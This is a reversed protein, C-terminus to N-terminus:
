PLAIWQLDLARDQHNTRSTPLWLKVAAQSGILFPWDDFYGLDATNLATGVTSGTAIQSPASGDAPYRWLTDDGASGPGGATYVAQDDAGIMSGGIPITALPGAPGTLTATDTDSTWTWVGRSVGDLPAQLPGLSQFATAGLPMFLTDQSYGDVISTAGTGAVLNGGAYTIPAAIATPKNTAPDIQRLVAGALNTDMASPDIFWISPGLAAFTPSHFFCPISITAQTSLTTPDLRLISCSGGTAEGVWVSGGAVAVPGGGAATVQREIQGRGPDASVVVYSSDPLQVSLYLTGDPALAQGNLGQIDAMLETVGAAPPPPTPGTASPPPSGLAAPGTATFTQAVQYSSAFGAQGTTGVDFVCADYLAPDSIATCAQAGAARATAPLDALTIATAEAPFGPKAFTATAEGPQYDFLSSADTVRWGDALTQYLDGFAVHSDTTTPLSSGDPLAPMPQGSPAMPGLLGSGDALLAASPRVQANIGWSGVSMAWLKTGDPFDIEYGLAYPIIGAGSGLDVPSTVRTLSGDIRVQLLSGDVYIGVRHSGVRAAVATNISLHDSGPWPEQRGQIELSGDPSRLLTFEGAAQFDYRHGDITTLHPDGTSGACGDACPSGESSSGSGAGTTSGGTGSGGSGGSGAPPASPAGCEDDLKKGTVVYTSGGDPGTFALTIPLRMPQPALDEGARLTGPKCICSAVTCLQTSRVGLVANGAEDHGSVLGTTEVSVIEGVSSDVRDITASLSELRGTWGPGTAQIPTQPVQVDGPLGLGYTIWPDGLDPRRLLSPAWMARVDPADGTVVAIFADSRSGSPTGAAAWAPAMLSWLDRGLHALMAFYCYADYARNTLPKQPLDFWNGWWSAIGPEEIGTDDAALWPATGETIWAPMAENTAVDGWLVQQYCHVAEHTLLVHIRDSVKAGDLSEGAWTNHWVTVRCPDFNGEENRYYTTFFTNGGDQDSFTLDPQITPSMDPHITPLGLKPGLELLDAYFEARFANELPNYGALEAAATGARALPILSGDAGHGPRPPTAASGPAPLYRRIVAQQDATLHDWNALVWRTVGTGSTPADGGDRGAPIVVGPIAVKYAYAFAELAVQTPVGDATIGDTIEAWVTPAEANSPGAWPRVVLLGITAAAILLALTILAPWRHRATFRPRTSTTSM